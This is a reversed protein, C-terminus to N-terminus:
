CLLYHMGVFVAVTVDDCWQIWIVTFQFKSVDVITQFLIPFFIYIKKYQVNNKIKLSICQLKVDTYVIGLPPLINGSCTTCTFV